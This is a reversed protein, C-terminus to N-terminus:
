EWQILALLKTYIYACVWTDTHNIKLIHNKKGGTLMVNATLTKEQLNYKMSNIIYLINILIILM